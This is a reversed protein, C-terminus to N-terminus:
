ALRESFSTGISAPCNFTKQSFNALNLAFLTATSSEWVHRIREISQDGFIVLQLVAPHIPAAYYYFDVGV